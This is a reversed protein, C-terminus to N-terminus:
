IALLVLFCVIKRAHFSHAARFFICREMHLMCIYCKNGINNYRILLQFKAFKNFKKTSRRAVKCIGRWKQYICIRTKIQWKILNNGPQNHNPSMQTQRALMCHWRIHCAVLYINTINQCWKFPFYFNFLACFNCRFLYLNLYHCSHATHMCGSAFFLLHNDNFASVLLFIHLFERTHMFIFKYAEPLVNNCVCVNTPVHTALAGFSMRFDSRQAANLRALEVQMCWQALRAYLCM